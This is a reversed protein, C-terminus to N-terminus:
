LEFVQYRKLEEPVFIFVPQFFPVVIIDSSKDHQPASGINVGKSLFKDVFYLFMNFLGVYLKKHIRVPFGVQATIKFIPFM